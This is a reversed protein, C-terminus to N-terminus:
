DGAVIKGWTWALEVIVYRFLVAVILSVALGLFLITL